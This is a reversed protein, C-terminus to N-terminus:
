RWSRLEGKAWTGQQLQALASIELIILFLLHSLQRRRYMQTIWPVARMLVISFQLEIIVVEPDLSIKLDDRSWVPKFVQRFVNCVTSLCLWRVFGSHWFKVGLDSFGVLQRREEQGRCEERWSLCQEAEDQCKLNRHTSMNEEWLRPSQPFMRVPHTGQPNKFLWRVIQFYCNNKRGRKLHGYLDSKPSPKTKHEKLTNGSEKEHHKKEPIKHWKLKGNTFSYNLKGSATKDWM